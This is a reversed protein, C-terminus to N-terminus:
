FISSFLAEQQTSALVHASGAMSTISMCASRPPHFLHGRRKRVFLAYLGGAVYVAGISIVAPWRFEEPRSFVITTIYSLMEFLNQFSTEVTSFAGRHDPEVEDQVINQACLDFGWLGLRSMAVSVVLGTAPPIRGGSSGHINFFVGLAAALWIMQWSLSWIGARVTGIRGMLRPAIWTASLEFVTSITRALGVHLSTYGISILYTIMQGSFSLVTLYLLSLAFSPLFARHNVYFALSSESVPLVDSVLRRTELSDRAASEEDGDSSSPASRGRRLRPVMDYVQEICRYEVGVALLSMGLTAWIAVDISGAAISSVTLPGLLKCLLDIRRMKANMERRGVEDGETIVVVWDREVAVLNVVAGLKEVCALVVVVGLLWWRGKMGMGGMKVMGWFGVCSGGVACRQALISGRVVGLREGEDIWRGVVRAFVVASASRVLAYLSMPLLTDSYISALFLVAGFEFVRSNWTSLLHSTYLRLPLNPPIPPSLTPPPPTPQPNTARPREM